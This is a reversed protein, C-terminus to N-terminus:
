RNQRRSVNPARDPSNPPLWRHCTTESPFQQCPQQRRRERQNRDTADDGVLDCMASGAKGVITRQQIGCLRHCRLYSVDIASDIQLKRQTGLLYQQVVIQISQEVGHDARVAVPDGASSPQRCCRINRAHVLGVVVICLKGTLAHPGHRHHSLTFASAERDDHDLCQDLAVLEDAFNQQCHQQGLQQEDDHGNQHHTIGNAM